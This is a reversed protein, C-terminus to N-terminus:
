SPHTRGIPPGGALAPTPVHRHAWWGTRLACTLRAFADPPGFSGTKAVFRLGALPGGVVVGLPVGRIIDAGVHLGSGGVARLTAEAVDGGTAIVGAVPAAHAVAAAQAALAAAVVSSQDPDARPDRAWDGAAIIVNRGARLHEVITTEPQSSACLAVDVSVLQAVGDAVARRLQERGRSSATGSAIVVPPPGALMRRAILEDALAAGIGSTGAVVRVGCDLAAAAIARLDDEATADCVVVRGGDRMHADLEGALAESGREVVTAPVHRVADLKAGLLARVDPGAAAARLHSGPDDAIALPMGDVHQVGAVTTRGHAPAAFVCVAHQEQFGQLTGVLEAAINGRLLSDVKKICHTSGAARLAAAAHRARQMAVAGPVHRSDTTVLACRRPDVDFADLAVVAAGIGRVALEAGIAVVGTLDDGLVALAPAASV